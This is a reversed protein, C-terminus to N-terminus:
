DAQKVHDFFTQLSDVCGAQKLLQLLAIEDLSFLKQKQELTLAGFRSELVVILSNLGGIVKGEQLGEERGEELGVTKGKIFYSKAYPEKNADIMTKVEDISQYRRELVRYDDLSKKGRLVLQEFWNLLIEVAHRDKENAFLQLLRESIQNIDENNEALFLVSVLNGIELLTEKGYENEAIKFYHLKPAYDGLLDPNQLLKQFDTAATWRDNGNYLVLPFIPPLSRVKEDAEVYDMYFNSIYNLVRLAMYWVVTSQFELLIYIYAEKGRFRVKYLIDSETEKYHASVFSKDIKQCDDFDIDKVWDETVFTEVLERFFRKNSFLYKYGKDHINEAM